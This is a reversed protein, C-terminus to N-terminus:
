DHTGVAKTIKQLVSQKKINGLWHQELIKVTNLYYNWNMKKGLSISNIIQLYMFSVYFRFESVEDCNSGINQWIKLVQMNFEVSSSIAKTAQTIMSSSHEPLYYVVSTTDVKKFSYGLIQSLKLWLEWDELYPLSEDFRVETDKFNKVVCAHVPFLNTTMLLQPIPMVDWLDHEHPQLKLLERKKSVLCSYVFIETQPDSQISKAMADLHNPLWLDDDDLFCIYKGLSSNIGLNRAASLGKNQEQKLHKINLGFQTFENVISAVDVGADNVVIIEINDDLGSHNQNLISTLAEKLYHPRNYTPIVVSIEM